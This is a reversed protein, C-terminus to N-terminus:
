MRGALEELFADMAARAEAQPASFGQVIWSFVMRPKGKGDLLYGSLASVRTLTGTKARIRGEGRTGKFRLKLTGTRGALPLARLFEKGWPRGLAGELLGAVQRPTVQDLRSLGSGDAAVFGERDVGFRDLLADLAKRAAAASARKGERGMGALRFLNEAFLNQSRLFMEEVMRALPPSLIRGLLESKKGDFRFGELDKGCAPPGDVRIGAERFARALARAAFLGPDEVPFSWKVPGASLPVAGLILAGPPDERRVVRLGPGGNRVTVSRNWVRLAGPISPVEEVAPPAGLARPRLLLDVVNEHFVLAGFPASWAYARDDWAWGEGLPPDPFLDSLAVVRGTVRRLGGEFLRAALNRFVALPDKGRGLTPDGGGQLVLDGQLVGNVAKGTGYVRTSAQWAPGLRDLALAGTFLKMNSAPLFAKGGSHDCLVRGSALDKVVVGLHATRFGPRSLLARLRGELGGAAPVDRGPGAPGACSAALVAAPLFFARAWRGPDFRFGPTGRDM